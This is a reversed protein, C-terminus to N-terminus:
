RVEEFDVYEGDDKRKEEEQKKYSSIRVEGEDRYPQKYEHHHVVHTKVTSRGFIKWIVWIILITYFVDAM